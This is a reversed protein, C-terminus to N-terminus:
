FGWKLLPIPISLGVVFLLWAIVIISVTLVVSATWSMKWDAALAAVTLLVLAPIM